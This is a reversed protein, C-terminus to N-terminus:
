FRLGAGITVTNITQDLDQGGSDGSLERATFDARLFLNESVNYEAGLGLNYGTLDISTVGSEYESFSVGAAGYFMVDGAAYGIRARLDAVYPIEYDDGAGIENLHLYRAEGGYVMAGNQVNYGGFIGWATGNDYDLDLTTTTAGPVSQTLEGDGFVHGFELGVYPGEFPEDVAVVVPPPPPPADIPGAFAASPSLLVAIAIFARSM